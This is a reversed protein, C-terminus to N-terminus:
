EAVEKRKRNPPPSVVLDGALARDYLMRLHDALTRHNRRALEKLAAHKADPIYAGALKM